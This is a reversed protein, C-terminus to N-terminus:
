SGSRRDRPHAPPLNLPPRRTRSSYGPASRDAGSDDPRSGGARRPGARRSGLALDPDSPQRRPLPDPQALRPHTMQTRALRMNALRPAALRTNALRPVAGLNTRRLEAMQFWRWRWWLGLGATGLGLLLLSPRDGVGGILADVAGLTLLFGSVPERRAFMGM